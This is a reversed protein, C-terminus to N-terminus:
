NPLWSIESAGAQHLMTVLAIQEHIWEILWRVVMRQFPTRPVPLALLLEQLLYHRDVLDEATTRQPKPLVMALIVLVLVPFTALMSIVNKNPDVFTKM